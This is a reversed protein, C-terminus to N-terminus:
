RAKGSKAKKKPTAPPVVVVPCPARRILGSATSGAFLDYLASHGHSGVVIYDAKVQKAQAIISAVPAGTAQLVEVPIGASRKLSRERKALEKASTRESIAVIEQINTMIAGYESILVPPQVIHLLVLRADHARALALAVKIVANSASSFDIPALITKM